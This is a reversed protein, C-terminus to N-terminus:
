LEFILQACFGAIEDLASVVIDIGSPQDIVVCMNGTNACATRAIRNIGFHEGPRMRKVM